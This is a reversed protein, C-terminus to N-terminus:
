RGESRGVEAEEPEPPPTPPRLAKLHLERAEQRAREDAEEQTEHAQAKPRDLSPLDFLWITLTTYPQQNLSNM